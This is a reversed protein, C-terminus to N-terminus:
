IHQITGCGKIVMKSDDRCSVLEVEVKTLKNFFSEDGCMHNSAGTDLYWVSNLCGPSLEDSSRREKVHGSRWEVKLKGSKFEANSNQMMMLIGIEEEEDEETLLNKEKKKSQCYKAIHDVKGCSASRCDRTYHDYKGCRFCEM